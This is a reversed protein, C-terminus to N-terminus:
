VRRTVHCSEACIELGQEERLLDFAGQLRDIRRTTIAQIKALSPDSTPKLQSTGLSRPDTFSDSGSFSTLPGTTGPAVSTTDGSQPTPQVTTDDLM